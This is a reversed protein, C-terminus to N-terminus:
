GIYWPMSFCPVHKIVSLTFVTSQLAMKAITALVLYIQYEPTIRETLNEKKQKLHRQVELPITASSAPMTHMFHYLM